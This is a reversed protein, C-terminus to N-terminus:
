GMQKRQNNVVEKLITRLFYLSICKLVFPILVLFFPSPDLRYRFIFMYFSFGFSFLFFVWWYDVIRAPVERWNEGHPCKSVRYIEKMAVLPLVLNVIPILCAWFCMWSSFELRHSSFSRANKNALFLFVAFGFIGLLFSISVVGNVFAFVTGYFEESIFYIGLLHQCEVLLFILPVFTLVSIALITVLSTLELGNIEKGNKQTVNPLSEQPTEYPNSESRDLNTKM